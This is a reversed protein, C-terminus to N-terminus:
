KESDFFDQVTSPNIKDVKINTDFNKQIVKIASDYSRKSIDKVSKYHTIRWKEILENLSIKETRSIGKSLIKDDLIKQAKKRSQTTDRDLNVSVTRWKDTYKDKYRETFQYKDNSKKVLYM